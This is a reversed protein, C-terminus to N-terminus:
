RMHMMLCRGTVLKSADNPQAISATSVAIAPRRSPSCVRSTKSALNVLLTMSTLEANEPMSVGSVARRVHHEAMLWLPDAHEEALQCPGIATCALEATSHSVAAWSSIKPWIGSRTGAWKNESMRANMGAAMRRCISLPMGTADSIRRNIKLAGQVDVAHHMLHPPMHGYEVASTWM